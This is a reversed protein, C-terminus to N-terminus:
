TCPESIILPRNPISLVQSASKVISCVRLPDRVIVLSIEPALEVIRYLLEAVRCKAPLHGAPAELMFVLWRRGISKNSKDVLIGDLLM